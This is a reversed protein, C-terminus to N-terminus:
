FGDGDCRERNGHATEDSGREPCETAEGRRAEREADTAGSLVAAGVAEFLPQEGGGGIRWAEGRREDGVQGLGGAAVEAM